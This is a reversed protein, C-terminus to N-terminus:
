RTNNGDGNGGENKNGSLLEELAKRPIVMRKNGLRLVKVPFRDEKCLQYALGRSCGLQAAAETISVTLREEKDAM